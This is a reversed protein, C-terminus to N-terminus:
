YYNHVNAKDGPERLKETDCQLAPLTNYASVVFILLSVDKHFYEPSRGELELIRMELNLIRQLLNRPTPGGAIFIIKVTAVHVNWVGRQTFYVFNQKLCQVMIM